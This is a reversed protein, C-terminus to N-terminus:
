NCTVSANSAGAYAIYCTTNAGAHDAHAGWGTVTASDITVTVNESPRFQATTLTGDAAYALNEEYYTEQVAALTRLDSRLMSDFARSKLSAVRPIALAALLGIISVVILLEILTFGRAQSRASKRTM